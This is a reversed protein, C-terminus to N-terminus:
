GPANRAGIRAPPQKALSELMDVAKRNNWDKYTEVYEAIRGDPAIVFTNPYADIFFMDPAKGNWWVFKIQPPMTRNALFERLVDPNEDFSVCLFVVDKLKPNKSLGVIGPLESVCVNCTTNWEQLFVTKGRFESLSVPEGNLDQLVWGFDATLGSEYLEDPAEDGPLFFVLCLGWAAVLALGVWWWARHIRPKLEM